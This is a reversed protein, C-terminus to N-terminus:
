VASVEGKKFYSHVSVLAVGQKESGARGGRVTERDWSHTLTMEEYMRLPKGVNMKERTGGSTVRTLASGRELAELIGMAQQLLFLSRRPPMQRSSMLKSQRGTM